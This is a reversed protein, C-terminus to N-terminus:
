DREYLKRLDHVPTGLYFQATVRWMRWYTRLVGLREFRRTSTTVTDPALALRGKGRLRRALEFEEMLPWDPVGGIAELVERRIFFGQDGLVRQFLVMRIACRFRSGLMFWRPHDFRKWFGGAVITRDRLCNLIARGANPSLFTDAHLLLVVDGKAHSAGTALQVGRGQASALVTCGLKEAVQPTDDTSGGDAVIIEIIEPIRRVSEVVRPLSERENLTPIVVSLSRPESRQICQLSAERWFLLGGLIAWVLYVSFTLLAAAVAEQPTIGYPALLVYAAGERVGAGAITVPASSIWSIVPFTWLLESWVIPRQSVAQLCLPLIAGFVVQAVFSLAIGVVAIGPQSFLQRVGAVFSNLTRVPFSEARGTRRLLGLLAIVLGGIVLILALQRWSIAYRNLISSFGVDAALGIALLCYLLHGAGGFIRDLFCTALIQATSFRFWRAYAAAKAVDGAAPGFLLTNFFHGMYVLRLTAG